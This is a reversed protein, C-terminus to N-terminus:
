QTKSLFYKWFGPPCSWLNREEFFCEGRINFKWSFMIKEIFNHKQDSTISQTERIDSRRFRSWSFSTSFDLVKQKNIRQARWVADPRRSHLCDELSYPGSPGRGRLTAVTNNAPPSPLALVVRDVRNAGITTGHSTDRLTSFTKMCLKRRSSSKQRSHVGCGRDQRRFKVANGHYELDM